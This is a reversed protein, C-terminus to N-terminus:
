LTSGQVPSSGTVENKGLIGCHVSHRFGTVALFVPMSRPANRTWNHPSITPGQSGASAPAPCRILLRRQALFRSRPAYPAFRAWGRPPTARERREEPYCSRTNPPATVIRLPPESHRQCIQGLGDRGIGVRKRGRLM